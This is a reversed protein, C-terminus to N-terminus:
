YPVRNMDDEGFSVPSGDYSMFDVQTPPMDDDMNVFGNYSEKSIEYESSINNYNVKGVDHSGTNTDEDVEMFLAKDDIEQSHFGEYDRLVPEPSSHNVVEIETMIEHLDEDLEKNELEAGM